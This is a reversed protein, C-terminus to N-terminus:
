PMTSVANASFMNAPYDSLMSSRVTVSQVCSITTTLVSMNWPERISLISSPDRRGVPFYLLGPTGPFPPMPHHERCAQYLVISSTQLDHALGKPGKISCRRWASVFFFRHLSPISHGKSRSPRKSAPRNGGDANFDLRPMRRKPPRCYLLLTASKVENLIAIVISIAHCIWRLQIQERIM